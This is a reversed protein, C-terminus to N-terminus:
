ILIKKLLIKLFLLMMLKLKIVLLYRILKSVKSRSYDTELSLYTDIRINDKNVVLEM